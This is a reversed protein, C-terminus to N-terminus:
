DVESVLNSRNPWQASLTSRMIVAEYIAHLRRTSAGSNYFLDVVRRTQHSLQEWLDPDEALRRCNLYVDRGRVMESGPNGALLSLPDGFPPLSFSGIQRTLITPVGRRMADLAARGPAIALFSRDYMTSLETADLWGILSTRPAYRGSWVNAVRRVVEGVHSGTGAITFMWRPDEYEQCSAAFDDLISLVPGFDRDIRSAIAIMFPSRAPQFPHVAGREVKFRNDITFVRSQDIGPTARLRTSIADTVGIIASAKSHWESIKDDYWGHITVVVPIKLVEAAAFAFERAGFPHSHILDWPGYKQVDRMADETDAPDTAIVNLGLNKLRDLFVGRRGLVTVEVGFQPASVAIEEIHDHLGGSEAVYSVPM